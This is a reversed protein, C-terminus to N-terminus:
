PKPPRGEGYLWDEWVPTLDAEPAAKAARKEVYATFDATDANGHRHDTAWGRVLGFFADDGVAERIKHLVMAGREYVPSDSIRAASPPKAPPFDWVA